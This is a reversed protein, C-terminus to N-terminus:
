MKSLDSIENADNLRQTQSHTLSCFSTVPIGEERGRRGRRGEEEERKGRGEERKGRGEEREGRGEGREGRGEGREKRVRGPNAKIEAVCDLAVKGYASRFNLFFLVSESSRQSVDLDPWNYGFIIKKVIKRDAFKNQASTHIGFLNKKTSSFFLKYKKESLNKKGIEAIGSFFFESYKCNKRIIETYL